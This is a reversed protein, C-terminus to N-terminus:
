SPHIVLWCLRKSYNSTICVPVFLIDSHRDRTWTLAYTRYNRLIIGTFSSLWIDNRILHKEVPKYSSKCSSSCSSIIRGSCRFEGGTKLPARTVWEQLKIHINQLDNNTRKRNAMTNDTRRQNVSESWGKLIKLSKTTRTM